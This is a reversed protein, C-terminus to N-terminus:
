ELPSSEAAIASVRQGPVLRHVGSTVVQDGPELTGRVFVRTSSEGDATTSEEHIIEVSRPELVRASGDTAKVANGRSAGATFADDDAASAAESDSPVLVYATWLGRLGQTLAATPLWYGDSQIMEDITLRATQGPEIASIATPELQLIVTQTRTTADVEPSVAVVEAPYARNNVNVSQVTGVRLDDVVAAPVGVRVEPSAAEVLEIVAQGSGIVTGEDVRREAVIGDFPATITSKAINVDIDQLQADLQAVVARQADLQEFRTGNQLEQLRSRAQDLRAQLSNAGFAFEDLQERAIAGREYLYERRDEQTEQLILQQEIDRVEAEAVAIDEARAGNELEALQAEAQAKQAQLQLRQTELNRVDLRAILTGASVRDGEEVLVQVLEGGREFGLESRRLAAMEGTYVRPVQYADVPELTLTEVPLVRSESTAPAPSSGTLVNFGTAAGVLVLLGTAGLLGYRVWSPQRALPQPWGRSPHGSQSETLDASLVTVSSIPDSNM